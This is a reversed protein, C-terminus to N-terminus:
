PEKEDDYPSAESKYESIGPEFPSWFMLRGSQRKVKNEEIGGLLNRSLVEFIHSYSREVAKRYM